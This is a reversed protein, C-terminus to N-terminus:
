FPLSDDGIDDAGGTDQAQEPAGQKRPTLLIVDLAKIETAYRKGGGNKDEWSRTTIQGEVALADGKAILKSLAEARNGWVVIRHWEPKKQWTGEKDKYKNDTALSFQLVATGGNTFKLEPDRGVRGVLFAKNFM